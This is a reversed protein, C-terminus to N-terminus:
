ITTRGEGNKNQGDLILRGADGSGRAPPIAPNWQALHSGVTQVVGTKCYLLTADAQINGAIPM